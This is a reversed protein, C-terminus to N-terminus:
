KYSIIRNNGIKVLITFFKKDTFFKDLYAAIAKSYNTIDSNPQDELIRPSVGDDRDGLNKQKMMSKLQSKLEM